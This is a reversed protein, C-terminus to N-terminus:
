ECYDYAYHTTMVKDPAGSTQTTTIKTTVENFENYTYTSYTTYNTFISLPGMYVANASKLTTKRPNNKSYSFIVDLPHSQLISTLASKQDFDSYTTSDIFVIPNGSALPDYGRMYLAVLNGEASYFAETIRAPVHNPGYSRVTIKDNEYLITDSELFNGNSLYKKSSTRKGETYYYYSSATGDDKQILKGSVDYTNYVSSTTSYTFNSQSLKRSENYSFTGTSTTSGEQTYAALLCTRLKHDDDSKHKKNCSCVCFLIAIFCIALNTHKM